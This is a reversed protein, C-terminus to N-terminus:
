LIYYLTEDIRLAGVATFRQPNNRLACRMDAIATRADTGSSTSPVFMILLGAGSPDTGDDSRVM